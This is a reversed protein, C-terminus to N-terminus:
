NRDIIVRQHSPSKKVEKKPKTKTPKEVNPKIDDYIFRHMQEKTANIDFVLYWTKNIIKGKCFGNLPFRVCELKISGSTIVESCLKLIDGKTMSTEIYPMIELALQTYKSVGGQIKKSLETMVIQQRQIREFDGNGVHRIRAYSTAQNGNLLQIGPKQIPTPKEGKLLAVETMYKNIEKIEKEKIDVEVGGLVDIIESLGRFDVTVYDRIDLNFNQNITKIALEPGGYVYSHNIKTMGHNEINVYSDRMLSSLKIKRHKGDISLIMITDAHSVERGRGGVDVGFLAINVVKDGFNKSEVKKIGLDEDKKSIKKYKMRSLQYYTYGVAGSCVMFILVLIILIISKLTIGKKLRM